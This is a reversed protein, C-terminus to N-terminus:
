DDRRVESAPAAGPSAAEESAAAPAADAAGAAPGAPPPDRGVAHLQAQAEDLAQRTERLSRALEERALEQELENKMSVWHARARRLWLGALRAAKPLREPGLVVLAVLAVVLMEGLSFDFM